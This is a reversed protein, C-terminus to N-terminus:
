DLDHWPTHEEMRLLQERLAATVPGPAPAPLACEWPEFGWDNAPPCFVRSLPQVRRICNSLFAERWTDRQGARPPRLETRVGLAAAAQLLQYQAVGPLAAGSEPACVQLVLGGFAPSAPTAAAEGAAAAAAIAAATGAAAPAGGGAGAAAAGDTNGAAATAAAASAAAAAPAAAVVFFNTILGELLGGDCDSLLVEAAEPPKAAEYRRREAVWSCAKAAALSRPRGMVAAQAAHGPGYPPPQVAKCYVAVRAPPPPPPPQPPPPQGTATSGSGPQPEAPPAPPPPHPHPCVAVVLM